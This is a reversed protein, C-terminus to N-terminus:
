SQQATGSHWESRPLRFHLTGTRTGDPWEHNGGELNAIRAVAHFAQQHDM